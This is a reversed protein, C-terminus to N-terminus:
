PFHRGKGSTQVNAGSTELGTFILSIVQRAHAMRDIRSGLGEDIFEHSLGNAMATVGRALDDARGRRFQKRRQGERVIDVFLGFMKAKLQALNAFHSLRANERSSPSPEAIRLAVSAEAAFHGRLQELPESLEPAFMTRYLGRNELAFEVYALGAAVLQDPPHDGARMVAHAISAYLREFGAAAVAAALDAKDAFYHKPAAHSVGVARAVERTSLAGIGLPEVRKLAEDILAKELTEGWHYPKKPGHGKGTMPVIQGGIKVNALNPM